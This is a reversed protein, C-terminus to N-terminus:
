GPTIMKDEKRERRCRKETVLKMCNQTYYMGCTAFSSAKM